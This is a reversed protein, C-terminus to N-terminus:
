YNRGGRPRMEVGQELLIKRATNYSVGFKAGTAKLSNGAKYFEGVGDFKPDKYDINMDFVKGRHARLRSTITGRSVGFYEGIRKSTFGRERLELIKEIPIEKAQVPM